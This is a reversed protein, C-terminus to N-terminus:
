ALETLLFDVTAKIKNLRYKPQNYLLYIGGSESRTISLDADELTVEVLDGAALEPEVGWGFFLGLGAGTLAQEVLERGVNCIFVPHTQVEQWGDETRAQWHILRNPGRYMLTRHAKLDDLVRPTGHEALYTPSAVLKMESDALKRAISREPLETTARIAIDVEHSALNYVQDTLEVDLILDPFRARLKHIAPMLLLRGYGPNATIRLLGSPASPRDTLLAKAHSLSKLAPRVQELYVSGLETLSVSRTTRNLLSTGLHSELDQIRRSISSAPVGIARAAATFSGLEAVKTFYEIARLRDM